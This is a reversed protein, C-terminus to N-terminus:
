ELCAPAPERSDENDQLLLFVRYIADKDKIMACLRAFEQINEDAAHM